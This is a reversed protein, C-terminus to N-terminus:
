HQTISISVLVIESCNWQFVGVLKKPVESRMQAYCLQIAALPRCQLRFFFNSLLFMDQRNFAVM